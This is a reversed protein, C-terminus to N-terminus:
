RQLFIPNSVAFALRGPYVPTLEEGNVVVIAWSGTASVPVHVDGRFRVTADMPDRQADGLAVAPMAAGDVYVVLDRPRVWTPARVAVRLTAREGAGMLTQGPGAAASAGVASVRLHVGGEITSRGEGVARGIAQPTAARPDDTGLAMCTRPYGVPSSVLRHSDSSGVAFVRRGAALFSFWDGVIDPRESFAHDNFFEVATFREDWM